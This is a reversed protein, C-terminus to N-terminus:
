RTGHAAQSSSSPVSLDKISQLEEFPTSGDTVDLSMSTSGDGTVDLSMCGAPQPDNIKGDALVRTTLCAGHAHAVTHAFRLAARSPSVRASSCSQTFGTRVWHVWHM